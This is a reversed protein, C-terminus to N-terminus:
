EDCLDRGKSKRMEVRELTAKVDAYLDDFAARLSDHFSAHKGGHKKIFEEAAAKKEFAWKARQTMVGPKSGGVVWHATTADMLKRSNYDGVFIRCPVKSMNATLEIASCHSQVNGGIDTPISL